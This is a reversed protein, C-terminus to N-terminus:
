LQPNQSSLMVLAYKSDIYRVDYGFMEATEFLGLLECRAGIRRFQQKNM